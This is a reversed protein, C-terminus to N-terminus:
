RVSYKLCAIEDELVREIVFAEVNSVIGFNDCWKNLLELYEEYYKRKNKEHSSEFYWNIQKLMYTKTHHVSHFHYCFFCQDQSRIYWKKSYSM